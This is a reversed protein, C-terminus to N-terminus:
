KNKKNYKEEYYLYDKSNLMKKLKKERLDESIPFFHKLIIFHMECDVIEQEIDEKKISGPKNIHQLLVTSLESLEELAKMISKDVPKEALLVDIAEKLKKMNNNNNKLTQVLPAFIM